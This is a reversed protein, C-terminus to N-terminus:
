RLEKLTKRMSIRLERKEMFNLRKVKERHLVIRNLCTYWYTRQWYHKHIATHCKRCLAICNRKDTNKRYNIHHVDLRPERPKRGHGCIACRDKDRKRIYRKFDDNFSDPYVGKEYLSGKGRSRQLTFQLM